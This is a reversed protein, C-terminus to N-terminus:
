HSGYPTSNDAGSKSGKGKGKPFAVGFAEELRAKGALTTEVAKSYAEAMKTLQTSLRLILHRPMVDNDNISRDAYYKKWVTSGVLEEALAATTGMQAYSAPVAGPMVSVAEIAGWLAQVAETKETETDKLPTPTPLEVPSIVATLYLDAVKATKAVPCPCAPPEGAVPAAAAAAGGVGAGAGGADTDATAIREDYEALVLRHQELKLNTREQWLQLRVLEDKATQDRQAVWYDLHAQQARQLKVFAARGKAAGAVPGKARTTHDDVYVERQLRLAAATVKAAKAPKNAKGIAKELEGKKTAAVKKDVGCAAAEEDSLELLTACRALATQLAALSAAEESADCKSVVNAASWGERLPLPRTRTKEWEAMEKLTPLPTEELLEEDSEEEDGDEEMENDKPEAWVEEVKTKKKEEARRAKRSKRKGKAVSWGAEEEEAGGSTVMAAAVIAEADAITAEKTKLFATQRLAVSMTYPMTCYKCENESYEMGWKGTAQCGKRACDWHQAQWWNRGGGGYSGQNQKWWAM